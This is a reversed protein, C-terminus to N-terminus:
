REKHVSVGNLLRLSGDGGRFESAKGLGRDDVFVVVERRVVVGCMRRLWSSACLSYTKERERGCEGGGEVLLQGKGSTPTVPLYPVLDRERRM